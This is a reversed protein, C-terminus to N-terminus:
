RGDEPNAKQGDATSEGYNVDGIGAVVADGDGTDIEQTVVEDVFQSEYLVWGFNSLILALILIIVVIWLRKNTREMRAMGSEHVIFPVPEAQKRKEACNDCNM